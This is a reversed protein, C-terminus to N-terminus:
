KGVLNPPLHLAGGLSDAKAILRQADNLYKSREPWDKPMKAPLCISIALEAEERRTMPAPLIQAQPNDHELANMLACRQIVVGLGSKRQAETWDAFREPYDKPWVVGASASAPRALFDLMQQPPAGQGRTQAPAVWVVVVILTGVWSGRWVVTRKKALPSEAETFVHDLM